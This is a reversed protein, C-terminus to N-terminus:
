LAGVMKALATATIVGYIGLILGVVLHFQTKLESKIEILSQNFDDNKQKLLELDVQERTYTIM